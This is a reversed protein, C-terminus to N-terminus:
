QVGQRLPGPHHEAAALEQLADPLRVPVAVVVQDIDV